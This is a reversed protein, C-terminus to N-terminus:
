SSKVIKKILKSTGYELILIYVGNRYTSLDIIQSTQNLSNPSTRQILKGNIDLVSIHIESNSPIGNIYVLNLLPNQYINISNKDLESINLTSEINITFQITQSAGNCDNSFDVQATWNGEVETDNDSVSTFSIEESSYTTNNPATWTLEGDYLNSPLRLSFDSGTDINLETTNAINTYETNDINIQVADSLDANLPYVTLILNQTSDEDCANQNKYRVIYTGSDSPAVNTLQWATSLDPTTDITGDPYKIEFNSTGANQVGLYISAGECIELNDQQFWSAGDNVFPTLALPEQVNLVITAQAICSGNDYSVLYSGSDSPQVDNFIWATSVDPTDDIIGDPYQIQVNESGVNQMGLYINTGQCVELTSQQLWETGNNVFPTVVEDCQLPSLSAEFIGRGHTGIFIKDENLYQIEIDNVSTNPLCGYKKWEQTENELFFVGNYTGIFISGAQTDYTELSLIPINPLNYSINEWNIGGDTSKYVKGNNTYGGYSIFVTNEDTPHVELDSIYQNLPTSNSSWNLNTPDKAYVVNFRSAYIKDSNTKAIAIQELDDSPSVNNGIITWNTGQDDSAYVSNYGIIIRNSNNPDLKFPTEWAGNGDEGPPSIFTRTGNVWKRLAGNQIAYYRNNPNNFDIEQGMGDATPEYSQWSGNSNRTVNGNDQSGAGLINPDTQSIAIDYYQTIFLDSSLNAFSNNSVSYRFIGGDNCYYIFDSQLPNTYINRQDVHIFPLGNQGLWQTTAQFSDGENSSAYCEFNGVVINSDSNNAFSVVCNSEPLTKQSFNQGFDSSVNLTSGNTIAVYGSNSKTSVSIRVQGSGFDNNLNFSQGNNTSLYFQGSSGGAYADNSNISYRVARINANIIKTTTNFYDTTRYLGDSTAVLFEDANNPNVDIEYIRINQPLTFTLNTPAFSVGGDNSEYIGIGPPGYWVIDSLAIIIRDPNASDVIIDSVATHPLNDNLNTYSQGGDTTKWIGGFAAGVWFTDPDTPHFGISSVRGMDIQYGFNGNYNVASWQANFDSDQCNANSSRKQSINSQTFDGLTGNENLHHKWFSKWRQYKVFDGDRFDGQSLEAFTLGPCSIKFYADAEKIIDDFTVKQGNKQILFPNSIIEKINRAPEKKQSTVTMCLLSILLVIFTRKM